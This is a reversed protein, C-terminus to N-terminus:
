MDQKNKDFDHLIGQIEQENLKGERWLRRELRQWEKDHDEQLKYNEEEHLWNLKNMENIEIDKDQKAVSSKNLLDMNLQDDEKKLMKDLEKKNLEKNKFYKDIDYEKM